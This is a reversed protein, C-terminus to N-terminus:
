KFHDANEKEAKVKAPTKIDDLQQKAAGIVIERDESDIIKKLLKVDFIKPIYALMQDISQKGDLGVEEKMIHILGNNLRSQFLPLQKVEKLDNEDVENIGPMLKLVSNNKLYIGFVNKGHYHLLAM